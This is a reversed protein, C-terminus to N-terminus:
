SVLFEMYLILYLQQQDRAHQAEDPTYENGKHETNLEDFMEESLGKNRAWAKLTQGRSGYFDKMKQKLFKSFEPDGPKFDTGKAEVDNEGKKKKPPKNFELVLGVHEMGEDMATIAVAFPEHLTKMMENWVRKEENKASDDCHEWVELKDHHSYTSKVWGRREAIREFIDTITGLGILPVLIDRFLNFIEGIDKADLKGWASERKAFPLDGHLKGHLALLGAVAGKLAKAPPTQAPHAKEKKDKKKQKKEDGEPKEDDVASGAFMDSNELSQLYATQAKRYGLQARKLM